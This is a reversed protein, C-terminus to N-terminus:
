VLRRSESCKIRLGMATSSVGWWWKLFRTLVSAFCYRNSSGSKCKQLVTKSLCHGELSRENSEQKVIYLFNGYHYYFWGWGMERGM